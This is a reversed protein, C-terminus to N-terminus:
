PQPAAAVVLAPIRRSIETLGPGSFHLNLLCGNVMFKEHVEKKKGKRICQRFVSGPTSYVIM